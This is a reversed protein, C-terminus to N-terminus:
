KATSALPTGNAAVSVPALACSTVCNSGSTSAIGGTRPTGPAGSRLGPRTCPSRAYSLSRCRMASEPSADAGVERAVALRVAAPQADETVDDLLRDRQQVLEAPKTRSEVLTIVDVLREHDDALRHDAPSPEM